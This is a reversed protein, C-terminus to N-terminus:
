DWQLVCVFDPHTWKECVCASTVTNKKFWCYALSIFKPVNSPMLVGFLMFFFAHTRLRLTFLKLIWTIVHSSLWNAVVVDSRNHSSLCLSLSLVMLLIITNMNPIILFHEHFTFMNRNCLDSFFSHSFHCNKRSLTWNNLWVNTPDCKWKFM